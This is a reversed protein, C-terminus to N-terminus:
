ALGGQQLAARSLAAVPLKSGTRAALGAPAGLLAVWTPDSAVGPQNLAYRALAARSAREDLGTPLAVVNRIRGSQWHAVTLSESDRAAVLQETGPNASDLVNVAASWWPGIALLKHPKIAATLDLILQEEIAAGIRPQTDDNAQGRKPREVWIRLTRDHNVARAAARRVVRDHEEATRLNASAPAMFPKCLDGSLWIRLRVRGDLRTLVQRMLPKWDSVDSDPKTVPSRNMAASGTETQTSGRHAGSGAANATGTLGGPAHAHAIVREAGCAAVLLRGVYLDVTEPRKWGAWWV